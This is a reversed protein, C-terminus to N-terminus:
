VLGAAALGIQVQGLDAVWDVTRDSVPAGSALVHVADLQRVTDIMFQNPVLRSDLALLVTGPRAFVALHLASGDCGAIVDAGGVAIAQECISMEQPHIVDFGADSLM